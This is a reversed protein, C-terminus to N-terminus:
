EEGKLFKIHEKIVPEILGRSSEKVRQYRIIKDYDTFNHRIWAVVVNNLNRPTINKGRKEYYEIIKRATKRRMKPFRELIYDLSVM